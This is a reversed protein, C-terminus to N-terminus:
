GTTSFPVPSTKGHVLMGDLSTATYSRSFTVYTGQPINRMEVISVM